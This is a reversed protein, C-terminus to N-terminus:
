GRYGRWASFVLRGFVGACLVAGLVVLPASSWTVGSIMALLGLLYVGFVALVRVTRSPLFVLASPRTLKAALKPDEDALRQEIEALERKEHDALAM